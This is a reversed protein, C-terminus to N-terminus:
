SAGLSTKIDSIAQKEVPILNLKKLTKFMVTQPYSLRKFGM